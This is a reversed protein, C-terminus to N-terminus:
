QQKKSNEMILSSFKVQEIFTYPALKWAGDVYVMEVSLLVPSDSFAAVPIFARGTGQDMYINDLEDTNRIQIADNGDHLRDSLAVLAAYSMNRLESGEAFTESWHIHKDVTAKDFSSYNSQDIESVRDQTSKSGDGAAGNLIALLSEVAAEKDKVVTQGSATRSATQPANKTSVSTNGGLLLFLLAVTLGVSVFFLVAIALNKRDSKMGNTKVVKHQTTM